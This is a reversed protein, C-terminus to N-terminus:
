KIAVAKGSVNWSSRCLTDNRGALVYLQARYLLSDRLETLKGKHPDAGTPSDGNDVHGGSSRKLASHSSLTETSHEM